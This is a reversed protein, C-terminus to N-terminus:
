VENLLAFERFRAFAEKNYARAAEIEDKFLGLYKHQRHGGIQARWKRANKDWYVGKFQSSCGSQKRRNGQNQTQTCIRLNARRNDLTNHNIHDIQMEPRPAMIERHMYVREKGKRRMAKIARPESGVCWKHRALEEYDDDDVLAVFGKTLPIEKM